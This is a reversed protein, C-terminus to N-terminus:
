TVEFAVRGLHEIEVLVRTGPALVEAATAGGALVVSGAELAEGADAALASAAVLSRVPSGLIAATSGIQRAGGDLQLIIGLNSVDLDPRRWGGLIFGAASSNDAVVDTLSFKFDQYRSDILELAPAVAEVASLAEPATVRGSLRRKILFAVEPEVRPHVYRKREVTGGEDVAMGRTLRGWIMADVGMQAMKARSTFGMKMGIRAEGRAVRRAVSLAQVAYAEQLTLTVETSLQAIPTATRAADDLRAALDHLLQERATV